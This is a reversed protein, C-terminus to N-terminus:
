LSGERRCRPDKLPGRALLIITSAAACLLSFELDGVSTSRDLRGPPSPSGEGGLRGLGPRAGGPSEGSQSPSLDLSRDSAGGAAGAPESIAVTKKMGPMKLRTVSRMWCEGALTKKGSGDAETTNRTSSHRGLGRWPVTPSVQPSGFSTARSPDLSKELVKIRPHVFHQHMEAQRKAWAVWIAIDEKREIEPEAESSRRSLQTGGPSVPEDSAGAEVRRRWCWRTRGLRM